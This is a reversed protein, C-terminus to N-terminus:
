GAIITKNPSQIIDLPEKTELSLNYAKFFKNAAYEFVQGLNTVPHKAGKKSTNFDVAVKTTLIDILTKDDFDEKAKIIYVQSPDELQVALRKTKQRPVKEAKDAEAAKQIENLVKKAVEKDLNNNVVQSVTEINVKM